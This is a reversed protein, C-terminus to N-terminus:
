DDESLCGYTVFPLDLDEAERNLYPAVFTDASETEGGEPLSLYHDLAFRAFRIAPFYPSEDLSEESFDEDIEYEGNWLAKDLKEPLNEDNRLWLSIVSRDMVTIREYCDMLATTIYRTKRGERIKVEATATGGYLGVDETDGSWGWRLGLIKM